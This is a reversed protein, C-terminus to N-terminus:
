IAELYIGIAPNQSCPVSGELEMFATFEKILLLSKLSTEAGHLQNTLWETLSADMRLEKLKCSAEFCVFTYKSASARIVNHRVGKSNSSLSCILKLNSQLTLYFQNIHRTVGVVCALQWGV